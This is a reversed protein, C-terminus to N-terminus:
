HPLLDKSKEVWELVRRDLARPASAFLGVDFRTSIHAAAVECDRMIANVLDVDSNQRHMQRYTKMGEYLKHLSLLAAPVFSKMQHVTRQSLGPSAFLFRQLAIISYALSLLGGISMDWKVQKTDTIYRLADGMGGVSVCLARLLPVCPLEQNIGGHMLSPTANLWSEVIKIQRNDSDDNSGFAELIGLRVVDEELPAEVYHPLPELLQRGHRQSLEKVREVETIFSFPTSLVDEVLNPDSLLFALLVRVCAAHSFDVMELIDRTADRRPHFLALLLSEEWVNQGWICLFTIISIMTGSYLNLVSEYSFFFELLLSVGLFLATSIVSEKLTRQIMRIFWISADVSHPRPDIEHNTQGVYKWLPALLIMLSCAALAAPGKVSLPRAIFLASGLLALVIFLRVTTLATPFHYRRGTRQEQMRTLADHPM